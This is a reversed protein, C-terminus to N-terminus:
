RNAFTINKMLECARQYDAPSGIDIWTGNIPFWSVFRHRALANDILDPADTRGDAPLEALLRNSILYIGANALYRLTPKESLSEVREGDTTMVAYPVSVVYPIAAITIDAGTREHHLYMEELHIDTLLDSNMVLTTGEPDAAADTLAVSGITGMFRPERVTKVKVGEVETAFHDELQEALYNLTVTIDTVGVRALARINYDIIPKGGVELLPKPTSLTLPRLREGKGGAMLVAKIPLITSTVRTDIIGSPRGDSDVVPVLSIGQSRIDRLLAPRVAGQTLSRYDRRMAASVPSELSVGGLLARRVDGDTLTGSLRGDGDIALLTMSGGPLSNIRSLASLLTESESIIHNNFDVMKM